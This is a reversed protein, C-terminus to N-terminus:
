RASAAAVRLADLATALVELVHDVEDDTTAPGLTVRLGSRAREPEIGMAMLVHSPEVSGSACASGAAVCVGAEDLVHVLTDGRVGDCLLLAHGPLRRAGAGASALGSAAELRDRRAARRHWEESAGPGQREGLAAAFGAAGAVNETGPRLGGEQGGGFLVPPVDRLGRGALAGVGKPGGVKHAALAATVDGGLAGVDVRLGTAAQVADVHLPVGARSCIAAVEAVPQVVGTVNNAWMLCVLADGPRVAADLADLDLVGDADVDIWVVERGVAELAELTRRIAPHEVRTSILRGAPRQAARGMVVLNDAETGGATFIVDAARLGLADAVGARARTLGARAARGAAHPESPNGFHERLYPEMAAWAADSLPTTAAHDLYIM